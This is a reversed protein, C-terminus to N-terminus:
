TELLLVEPDELRRKLTNVFRAADAGDILRHDFSLVLPLIRRIVINGDRVVAKDQVRGMGVIAVEPYNIVPNVPSGGISGINTVSITGGHYGAAELSGDKARAAMDEIDAAIRHISKADANRIVPVVLGRDTDAAFGINYYKKYIIEGRVADLSANFQPSEQLGAALAKIVFAMLSLRGGPRGEYKAKLRPRFAELDTVDIDEMHSVQAVIVTSTAMKRAIKRRISILPEKEVPGFEAFDALPEVDVLPIGSGAIAIAQQAEGSGSAPTTDADDIVRPKEAAADQPAKAYRQVDEPTVRGAPGTGPVVNIDIGLERALKRTAPAAPVSGSHKAGQVPKAAMPVAAPKKVPEPNKAPESKKEAEPQGTEQVPAKAESAQEGAEGTDIVAVVDGVHVTDGPKGSVQKVVGGRPAPITVMAKDTEVDVLPDDEKIADGAAVHWKVIEAEHIGEGLDPLKFEFM